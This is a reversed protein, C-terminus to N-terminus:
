IFVWIKKSFKSSKDPALRACGADVTMLYSVLKFLEKSSLVPEFFHPKSDILKEPNAYKIRIQILFLYIQPWIKEYEFNMEFISLVKKM